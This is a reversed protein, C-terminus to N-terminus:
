TRPLAPAACRTGSMSASDLNAPIVRLGGPAIRMLSALSRDDNFFGAMSEEGIVGRMGLSLTLHAQADLDIAVPKKQMPALAATLNVCTTTKCVGGKQNFVTIM